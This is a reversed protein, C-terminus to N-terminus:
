DIIFFKDIPLKYKNAPTTPSFSAQSRSHFRSHSRLWSPVFVRLYFNLPEGRRSTVRSQAKTDKHSFNLRGLVVARGDYKPEQNFISFITYHFDKFFFSQFPLARLEISLATSKSDARQPNSERRAYNGTKPM